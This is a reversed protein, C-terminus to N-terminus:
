EVNNQWKTQVEMLSSSSVQTPKKTSEPRAEKVKETTSTTEMTVPPTTDSIVPTTDSTRLRKPSTAVFVPTSLSSSSTVTEVRAITQKSSFVRGCNRDFEERSSALSSKKRKNGMLASSLRSFITSCSEVFFWSAASNISLPTPRSLFQTSLGTNVISPIPSPIAEKYIYPRLYSLDSPRFCM